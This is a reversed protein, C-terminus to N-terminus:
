SALPGVGALGVAAVALLCFGSGSYAFVLRRARGLALPRESDAVLRRRLDGRFGPRPVPREAELRRAVEDLAPDPRETM